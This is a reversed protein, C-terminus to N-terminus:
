RDDGRSRALRSHSRSSHFPQFLAVASRPGFLLRRLTVSPPPNAPNVATLQRLPILTKGERMKRKVRTVLIKWFFTNVSVVRQGGDRHRRSRADPCLRREHRGRYRLDGAISADRRRRPLPARRQNAS